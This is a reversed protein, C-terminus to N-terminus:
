LDEKETLDIYPQLEKLKQETRKILQEYKEKQESAWAGELKGTSIVLLYELRNQEEIIIDAIIM